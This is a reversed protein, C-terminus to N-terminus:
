TEHSCFSLCTINQRCELLSLIMSFMSCFAPLSQLYSFPLFLCLPLDLEAKEEKSAPLCIAHLASTKHLLPILLLILPLRQTLPLTQLTQQLMQLTQLTQQLVQLTQLTQQLLQLTQLTLPLTQQPTQQPTLPLTQLQTLLLLRLPPPPPVANLPVSDM